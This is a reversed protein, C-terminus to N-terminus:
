ARTPCAVRAYRTSIEFGKRQESRVHRHFLFYDLFFLTNNNALVFPLLFFHSTPEYSQFYKSLFSPRPLPPNISQCSDLLVVNRRDSFNETRRQLIERIETRRDRRSLLNETENPAGAKFRYLGASSYINHPHFIHKRSCGPMRSEKRYSQASSFPNPTARSLLPSARESGNTCICHSCQPNLPENHSALVPM